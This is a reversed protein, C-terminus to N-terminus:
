SRGAMNHELVAQEALRLIAPWDAKTPEDRWRMVADVVDKMLPAAAFVKAADLDYVTAIIRGDKDRMTAATPAAKVAGIRYPESM